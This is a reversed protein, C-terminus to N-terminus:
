RLLGIPIGTEQHVRRAFYFGVATFGPATQPQCVSWRGKVDRQPTVAFSAEVGFHRILPFDASRIDEPADCGGLGWEMNSQGSCLWVDGVLIDKLLITNTATIKLEIPTASAALPELVCQWRGDQAVQTQTTQDALAVSIAEGPTGWGWVQIPRDRQLVMHDSFLAALRVEAQSDSMWLIALLAVLCSIRISSQLMRLSNLLFLM